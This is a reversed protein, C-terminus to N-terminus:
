RPLPIAKYSNPSVAGTGIKWLPEQKPEQKPKPEQEQEPSYKKFKWDFGSLFTDHEEDTMKVLSEGTPLTGIVEEINTPQPFMEGLAKTKQAKMRKDGHGEGGDAFCVRKNGSPSPFVEWHQHPNSTRSSKSSSSM